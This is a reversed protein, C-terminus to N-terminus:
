GARCRPWSRDGRRGRHTRTWRDRRARLRRAIRTAGRILAPANRALVPAARPILRAAIPVLAGIFAEAEDESEANSARRSLHAMLEADRYIRQVPNVFSEGENEGEAEAEAEFEFEFEFEYETEDEYEGQIAPYRHDVSTTM